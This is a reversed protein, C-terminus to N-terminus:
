RNYNVPVRKLAERYAEWEEPTNLKFSEYNMQTMVRPNVGQKLLKAAEPGGYLGGLTPMIGRGTGSAGEAVGALSSLAGLAGMAKGGIKVAPNSMIKTAINQLQTTGTNLKKQYQKAANLAKIAADYDKKINTPTYKPQAERVIRNPNDLEPILNSGRSTDQVRPVDKAYRFIYADSVDVGNDTQYLGKVGYPYLKDMLKNWRDDKVDYIYRLDIDDKTLDFGSKALEKLAAQVKPSQQAFKKDLHLFDDPDIDVSYVTGNKIPTDVEYGKMYFDRPMDVTTSFYAEGGFWPKGTTESVKNGDFVGNDWKAPTGHFVRQTYEAM